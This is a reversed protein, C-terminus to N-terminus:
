KYILNVWDIIESIPIKVKFKKFLKQFKPKLIINSNLTTSNNNLDCSLDPSTDFNIINEM